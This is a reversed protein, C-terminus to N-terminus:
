LTGWGIDTVSSINSFSRFSNWSTNAEATAEVDNPLNSFLDFGTMQEIYDVSVAHNTYSDNTYAKHEFWFGIATASQVESGSMKVKLFAKWFYNPIPLDTPNANKGTAGHLYNITENGGVKRYAPGTVVYVIEGDKTVLNREAEELSSWVGQNFNLQIQPTQNTAYYTQTNM